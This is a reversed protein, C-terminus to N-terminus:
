SWTCFSMSSPLRLMRCRSCLWHSPLRYGCDAFLGRIHYISVARLVAAIIPSVHQAPDHETHSLDGRLHKKAAPHGRRETFANAGITRRTRHDESEQRVWTVAMGEREPERFRISQPPGLPTYGLFGSQKRPHRCSPCSCGRDAILRLLPRERPRGAGPCPEQLDHRPSGWTTHEVLTAITFAQTSCGLECRRLRGCLMTRQNM